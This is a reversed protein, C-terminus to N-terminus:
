QDAFAARIASLREMKFREIINHALHRAFIRNRNENTTKTEKQLLGASPIIALALLVVALVIELMTMGSPRRPRGSLKIM